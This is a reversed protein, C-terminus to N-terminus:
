QETVLERIHVSNVLRLLSSPIPSGYHPISSCYTIKRNPFKGLGM